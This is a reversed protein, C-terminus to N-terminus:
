GLDYTRLPRAGLTLTLTLALALALALALSLSLSLSLDPVLNPGFLRFHALEKNRGPGRDRSRRRLLIMSGRRAMGDMSAMGWKRLLDFGSRSNPQRSVPLHLM